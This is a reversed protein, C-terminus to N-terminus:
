IEKQAEKKFLKNMCNLYDTPTIGFAFKFSNNFATLSTFGCKKRM